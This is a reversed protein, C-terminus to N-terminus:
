HQQQQEIADLLADIDFPKAMITADPLDEAARTLNEGASLVIIPLHVVKEERLRRYVEWGDMIPMMLDLVLIDPPNQAIAALAEEGNTATAVVYGGNQFVRCLLKRIGADDDVILIQEGREMLM